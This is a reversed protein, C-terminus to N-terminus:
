YVHAKNVKSSIYNKKEKFIIIKKELLYLLFVVLLFRAIAAYVVKIALMYMSGKWYFCSWTLFAVCSIPQSTDLDLERSRLTPLPARM